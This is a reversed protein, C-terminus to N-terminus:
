MYPQNPCNTLMFLVEGEIGCPEYTLGSSDGFGVSEARNGANAEQTGHFHAKLTLM